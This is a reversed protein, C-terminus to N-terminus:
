LRRVIRGLRGDPSRVIEVFDGMVVIIHNMHMKGSLQCLVVPGGEREIEVRFREGRLAEIVRGKITNRDKM